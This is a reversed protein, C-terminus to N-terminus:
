PKPDERFVSLLRPEEVCTKGVACNKSEMKQALIM